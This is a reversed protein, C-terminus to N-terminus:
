IVQRMEIINAEQYCAGLMIKSKMPSEIVIEYVTHSQKLKSVLLEIPELELGEGIIVVKFENADVSFGFEGLDYKDCVHVELGTVSNLYKEINYPTMSSLYDRKQYILERRKKYSLDERIPLYWKQEHYKLGWTATEPFAQYPLEEIVRRAEDMELGMVQFLWKGVYATDYFGNSVSDIMRKGAESSPFYELDM